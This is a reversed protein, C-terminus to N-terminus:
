SLLSVNVEIRKISMFANRQPLSGDITTFSDVAFTSIGGLSPFLSLSSDQLQKPVELLDDQEAM